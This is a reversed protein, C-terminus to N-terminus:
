EENNELHAWRKGKEILHITSPHVNAIISLSNAPIGVRLAKRIHIVQKQTLKHNPQKEGKLDVLGTKWEHKSNESLTVWELNEPRNDTKIGNIHNVTLNPKYGNVFCMAILRHVFMKPRKGNQLTSVVLYGNRNLFPTLKVSPFNSTFIQEVGNRTRKTTRTKAENWITGDKHVIWSVGKETIKIENM